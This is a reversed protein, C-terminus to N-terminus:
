DAGGETTRPQSARATSRARAAQALNRKDLRSYAPSILRGRDLVCSCSRRRARHEARRADRARVAVLRPHHRRVRARAIAAAISSSTRRAGAAAHVELRAGDAPRLPLAAADLPDVHLRVRLVPDERLLVGFTVCRRSAAHAARRQGVAHVSHGLRRLVADGDAREGDGHERVRRHLVDLVEDRQVRHPLRRDAGIGGRASRVAAPEDRRVGRGHLHLVRGHLNIVNWRM